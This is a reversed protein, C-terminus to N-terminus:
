ERSKKHLVPITFIGPRRYSLDSGGWRTHPSGAILTGEKTIGMNQQYFLSDMLLM